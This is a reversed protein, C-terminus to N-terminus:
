RRKTVRILCAREPPQWRSVSAGWPLGFPPTPCMFSLLRSLFSCSSIFSPLILPSLPLPCHSRSELLPICSLFSFPSLLSFTIFSPLSLHSPFSLSSLSMCVRRLVDLSNVLWGVLSHPVRPCTFPPCTLSPFHPSLHVPPIALFHLFRLVSVNFLFVLFSFFLVFSNTSLHSFIFCYFFLPFYLFM